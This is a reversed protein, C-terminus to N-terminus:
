FSNFLMCYNLKACIDSRSRINSIIWFNGIRAEVINITILRCKAPAHKACSAAVFAAFMNSFEALMEELEALMEELEALMEELELLMLPLVASM